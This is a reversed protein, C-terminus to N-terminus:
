WCAGEGPQVLADGQLVFLHRFPPVQISLQVDDDQLHRSPNEPETQWVCTEADNIDFVM